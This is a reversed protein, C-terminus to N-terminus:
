GVLFFKWFIGVGSLQRGSVYVVLRIGPLDPYLCESKQLWAQTLPPRPERRVLPRTTGTGRSVPRVAGSPVCGSRRISLSAQQGRAFPSCVSFSNGTPGLSVCLWSGDWHPVAMRPGWPAQSQVSGAWAFPQARLEGGTM